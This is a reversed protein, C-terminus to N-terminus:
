RGKWRKMDPLIDLNKEESKFMAKTIVSDSVAVGLIKKGKTVFHLYKGEAYKTYQGIVSSNPQRVQWKGKPPSKKAPNKGSYISIGEWTGVLKSRKLYEELESVVAKRAKSYSDFVGFDDVMRDVLDGISNEADDGHYPGDFIEPITKKSRSETLSERFEFFDKM